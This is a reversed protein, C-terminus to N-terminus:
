RGVGVKEISRCVPRHGSRELLVLVYGLRLKWVPAPAPAQLSPPCSPLCTGRLWGSGRARATAVGTTTRSRVSVFFIRRALAGRVRRRRRRGRGLAPCPRVPPSPSQPDDAPGGASENTEDRLLCIRATREGPTGISGLGENERQISAAGLFSEGARTRGCADAPRAVARQM